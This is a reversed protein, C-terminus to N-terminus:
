RMRCAASKYVHTFNQQNFSLILIKNQFHLSNQYIFSTKLMKNRFNLRVFITETIQVKRKFTRVNSFKLNNKM